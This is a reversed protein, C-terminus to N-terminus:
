DPSHADHGLASRSLARSHSNDLGRPTITTYRSEIFGIASALEQIVVLARCCPCPGTPFSQKTVNRLM